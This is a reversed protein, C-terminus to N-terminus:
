LSKFLSVTDEAIKDWQYRQSVLRYGNDGIARRNEPSMSFLETLGGAISEPDTEVRIAANCQFGEPLNCGDTMVVPLRYAWAELVSMPMGESFSTLVFAQSSKLLKEKDSGYAPGIFRVIRELNYEAVLKKLLSIHNDQDWGALKVTWQNLIDPSKDNLIKLAEILEKIGKKPNIRGIFLLTKDKENEVDAADASLTFGNPIVAIPATIGFKRMGDAEPKCLAIFCDATSFNKDEYLWCAIKKQLSLQRRTQRDLTGRPTIVIKTDPHKKKYCFAAYSYYMWTGQIDIIDPREHELIAHIDKSYGLRNLLPWGSVHYIALPLNLFTSRDEESYEDDHCVYVVEEKCHNLINLGLNKVSYFLGGSLRSNTGSLLVIKM